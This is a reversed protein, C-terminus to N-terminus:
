EKNKEEVGEREGLALFLYQPTGQVNIYISLKAPFPSPAVLLMVKFVPFVFFMRCNGPMEISCVKACKKM